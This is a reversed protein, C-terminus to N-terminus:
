FISVRPQFVQKLKILCYKKSNSADSFFVDWPFGCDFSAGSNSDNTPRCWWSPLFFQWSFSTSSPLFSSSISTQISFISSIGIASPSSQSATSFSSESSWYSSSWYSSSFSSESPWHSSSWFPSYSPQVSWPAGLFIFVKNVINM